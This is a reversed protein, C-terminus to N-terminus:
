PMLLILGVLSIIPIANAMALGIASFANVRAKAEEPVGVSRQLFIFLPAFLMAFIVIAGPIYLDAMSSAPTLDIFALVVLMIPIAESIAVGIFFRTQYKEVNDPNEKIKEVNIKFVVLISIVAILAAFAFLYASDM